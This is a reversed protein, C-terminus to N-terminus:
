MTNSCLPVMSRKEFSESRYVETSNLTQAVPEQTSPWVVIRSASLGGMSGIRRRASVCCVGPMSAMIGSYGKILIQEILPVQCRRGIQGDDGAINRRFAKPLPQLRDCHLQEIQLRVQDPPSGLAMYPPM